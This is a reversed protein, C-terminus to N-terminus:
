LFAEKLTRKDIKGSALRPVEADDLLQWRVPVKYASLEKNARLRLEDLDPTSGAAAVVAAAVVEGRKPDPVGVVFAAKVEPFSGLVTEVELPSVNAGGSKIMESYRGRFWIRGGEIYGRDGTHYYGDSDFTEEREKKYLGAMLGFGRVCFEGEEGDGLSRGTEPDVVKYDFWDRNAHPGFTETMGLNPPDGRSSVMPGVPAIGLNLSSLDRSPYTPHERLDQLVTAWGVISTCRERELLELAGEADFREQTVVAAGSYLAGLLDQPGGVWFFPM